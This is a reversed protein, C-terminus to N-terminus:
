PKASDRERKAGTQAPFPRKAAKQNVACGGRRQSSPFIGRWGSQRNEFVINLGLSLDVSGFQFVDDALIQLGAHVIAFSHGFPMQERTTV